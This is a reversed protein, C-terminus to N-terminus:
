LEPGPMMWYILIKNTRIIRKPIIMSMHNKEEDSM